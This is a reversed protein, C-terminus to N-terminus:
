LNGGSLQILSQHILPNLYDMIGVGYDLIRQETSSDVKLKLIVVVLISSSLMSFYCSFPFFFPRGHRTILLTILFGKQLMCYDPNM